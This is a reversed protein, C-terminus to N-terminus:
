AEEPWMGGKLSWVGFLWFESNRAWVAGLGSGPVVFVEETFRNKWSYIVDSTHVGLAQPTVLPHSNTIPTFPAQVQLSLTWICPCLPGQLHPISGSSSYFPLKCALPWSITIEVDSVVQCLIRPLGLVRFELQHKLDKSCYIQM